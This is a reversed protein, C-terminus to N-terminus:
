RAFIVDVPHLETKSDHGDDDVFVGQATVERGVLSNVFFEFQSRWDSGVNVECEILGNKNAQPPTFRNKLLDQFEREPRPVIELHPDNGGGYLVGSRDHVDPLTGVLGRQPSGWDRLFWKGMGPGRGPRRPPAGGSPGPRWPWCCRPPPWAAWLPGSS